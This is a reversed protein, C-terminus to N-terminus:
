SVCQLLFIAVHKGINPGRIRAIINLSPDPEFGLFVCTSFPQIVKLGNIVAGQKLIEEVMAAAQDVSKIRDATTELHTGASVHLYLPKEGDSPANPPRYKGRTIVIAGTCKQIEEQTQRKTLKYRVSSEADNIVIERAILEEQIKPQIKQALSIAHQQMSPAMVQQLNGYSATLHNILSASSVPIVGPHTIGMFSGMNGLPLVGPVAIGASVLSEAPQDWKRKKRQKSNSSDTAPKSEPMSITICDDETM